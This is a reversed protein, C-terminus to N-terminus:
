EPWFDGVLEVDQKVDDLRVSVIVLEADGPGDNWISRVVGPAVRVATGGEVDIVEEDLKFQLTGSIVYYIEEQAKHRHGYSGKGGSKPTMRRHTFAVQEAGLPGGLFRMEGPYKGGFVDPVEELRQIAYGSVAEITTPQGRM